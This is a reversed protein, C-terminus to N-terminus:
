RDCQKASHVAYLEREDEDCDEPEIAPVLGTCEMASAVSEAKECPHKEQQRMFIVEM